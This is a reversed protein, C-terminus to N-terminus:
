RSSLIMNILATVDSINIFGDRNIDANEVVLNELAEAMMSNVFLTVDSINVQGDGNVDGLLPEEDLYPLYDATVNRVQYKNTQTTVEFFSTERVGTVDVTQHSGATSGGQSFVFNVSYNTGTITFTKYYFKVGNVMRTDTVVQGPWNGCQQVDNSDWCYYAVQPWNNPSVTPDKLYVTIEYPDYEENVVTYHRTIVGTVAGNILLGAKMTLCKNIRATGGSAIVTGNTATPESGDLTYVIKAGATQSVATLTVNFPDQHTGSPISAWATETTKSLAMRYNTGSVVLVYTSPITYATNGMAVLLTGRTGTTRQAYYNNASSSGQQATTSTNTIGALQRAYIMQKISEKYSLWHKLFVCPTGPLSLMYANAAAIYQNIPDQPNSADRYQTDHNEVFTVSYRRYNADMNLGKGSGSLGTWNNNNVADRVTYRFPFDFAASQVVGNVKTGDIWAKVASLNGDWYEGVSYTPNAYANYMGTYSASYGKTMDYRFGAYGLDNLLMQIYAKVANQVNTSKHDLDRLGSWDEGTDNNASLSKGNQNAWNLTAGGDDDRCIDTSLLKYTVGKYTESPFTVWDNISKRHNIVVDAITGIGKSKFSNIMSQLETKTGFSSNYNSFWYVADYGMSTGNCSASQPIWVLKFFEALEDAQSELNTWKSDNFSDWYFGQLMVGSYNAPWGQAFALVPLVALTAAIFLKKM